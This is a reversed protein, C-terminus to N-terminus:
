GRSCGPSMSGCTDRRIALPLCLRSHTTEGLPIMQNGEEEKALREASRWQHVFNLHGKSLPEKLYGKVLPEKM